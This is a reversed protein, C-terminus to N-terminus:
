SSKVKGSAVSMQLGCLHELGRVHQVDFVKRGGFGGCINLVTALKHLKALVLPHLADLIANSRPLSDIGQTM